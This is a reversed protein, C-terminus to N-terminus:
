KQLKRKYHSDKSNSNSQNSQNAIDETDTDKDWGVHPVAEVVEEDREVDKVPIGYDVVRSTDYEKKRKELRWM